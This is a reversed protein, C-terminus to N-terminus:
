PKQNLSRILYGMGIVTHILKPAPPQDIKRRLYNIYVEVTNPRTSEHSAWVNDLIERKSVVRGQNQMLFALLYYERPLLDIRQGARSVTRGILNVELDDVRLIALRTPYGARRRYLAQLRASLERGDVTYGVCDDAGSELACAKNSPTDPSVLLLLPIDRNDTQVFTPLSNQDVDSLQIALVVVDYHSEHAMTWGTQWDTSVAVLNNESELRRRIWDSPMPADNILLLKM